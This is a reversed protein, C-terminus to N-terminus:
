LRERAQPSLGGEELAALIVVNVCHQFSANSLRVNKSRLEALRELNEPWIVSTKKNQTKREDSM